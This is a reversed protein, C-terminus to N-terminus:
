SCKLSFSYVMKDAKYVGVDDGPKINKGPNIDKASIIMLWKTSKRVKRSLIENNEVIAYEGFMRKRICKTKFTEYSGQNINKLATGAQSFFIVGIVIFTFFPTGILGVPNVAAGLGISGVSFILGMIIFMVGSKKMKEFGATLAQKQQESLQINEM